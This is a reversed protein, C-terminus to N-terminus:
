AKPPPAPTVPPSVPAVPEVPNIQVAAPEISQELPKELVQELAQRQARAMALKRVRGSRIQERAVLLDGLTIPGAEHDWVWKLVDVGEPSMSRALQQVEGVSLLARRGKAVSAKVWSRLSSLVILSLIAVIGWWVYPNIKTMFSVVQPGLAELRDYRVLDGFTLLQRMLWIWLWVVLVLVAGRLLWQPLTRKRLLASLARIDSHHSPTPNSKVMISIKRM